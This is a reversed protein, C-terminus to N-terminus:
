YLPEPLGVPDKVLAGRVLRRRRGPRLQPNPVPLIDWSRDRSM